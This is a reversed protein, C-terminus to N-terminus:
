KQINFGYFIIKESDIKLVGTKLEDYNRILKSLINQHNSDLSKLIITQTGGCILGSKEGHSNKNHFLKRIENIDENENLRNRCEGPLRHEMIGGGITGALNGDKSIAMKFGARGPSSNSTEAVVLLILKTGSILKENIFKWLEIEKM